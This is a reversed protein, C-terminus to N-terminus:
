YLYYVFHTLSVNVNDKSIDACYPEIFSWFKESTDNRPLPLKPVEYRLSTDNTFTNAPLTSHKVKLKKM